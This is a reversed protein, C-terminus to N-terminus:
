EKAPSYADDAIRALGSPATRLAYGGRVSLQFFYRNISIRIKKTDKEIKERTVM